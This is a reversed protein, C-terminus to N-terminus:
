INLPDEHYLHKLICSCATNSQVTNNYYVSTLHLEYYYTLGVGRQSWISLLQVYAWSFIIILIWLAKKSSATIM